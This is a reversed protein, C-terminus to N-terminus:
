GGAALRDLMADLQADDLAEFASDAPERMAERVLDEADPLPVPADSSRMSPAAAAVQLVVRPEPELRSVMFVALAFSAALATRRFSLM